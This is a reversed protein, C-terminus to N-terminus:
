DGCKLDGKLIIEAKDGAIESHFFRIDGLMRIEQTM